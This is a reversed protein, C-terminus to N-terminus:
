LGQLQRCRHLAAGAAGGQRQVRAWERELLEDFRRRNAVGTLSDKLSLESLQESLEILHAKDSQLLGAQLFVQRHVGTMVFAFGLLFAGVVSVEMAFGALGQTLGLLVCVLLSLPLSTLAILLCMRPLQLGSAFVVTACVWLNIMGIFRSPPYSYAQMGVSLTTLLLVSVLATLQRSREASMERRMFVSLLGLTLALALDKVLTMHLDASRWPEPSFYWVHILCVVVLVFYLLVLAWLYQALLSRMRADLWAEFKPELAAPFGRLLALPSNLRALENRM